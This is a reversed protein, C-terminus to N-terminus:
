VKAIPVTKDTALRQRLEEIHQVSSTEDFDIELPIGSADIEKAQQSLKEALEEAEAYCLASRQDVAALKAEIETPLRPRSLNPLSRSVVDKANSM